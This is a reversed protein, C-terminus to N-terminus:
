RPRQQGPYWWGSPPPKHQEWTLDTGGPVEVSLGHEAVVRSIDSPSVIGTLEGSRFVLLRGETTRTLRSLVGALPEDPEAVPVEAAPAAVQRLITTAREQRPVNRLRSLTVLGDFRGVEDLLPFAAHGRDLVVDQLFREVTLRGDATEVRGSMVDHVRVGSLVVGVRAQQEEASAVSVIFWGLLVWWLGEAGGTLLRVVGALVLLFGLGRGARASWVAARFRDGRWLWLAARLVRGGDLPAAPVLNFVALVLNLLALYGLVAVVLEGAGLFAAAWAVVGFAAALVVSAVPGVVAIRLEAGPTRDEGRLRAVGGLLWLTIGEVAVGNRRAVLAHAMEHGLLSGVLFVAAAIGGLAYGLPSHGPFAGPLQYGGLGAAVLVVIGLVSWHLGVRVGAIRGLRITEKMAAGPTDRPDLGPAGM